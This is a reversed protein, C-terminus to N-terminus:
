PRSRLSLSMVRAFGEADRGDYGHTTEGYRVKGKMRSEPSDVNLLEVTGRGLLLTAHGRVTQQESELFAEVDRLAPELWLGEHLLMGYLSVLSERQLLQWKSLVLKMLERHALHILLAAPAEFVVRGKIGFVTDGTHVDRGIGHRAGVEDLREILEALELAEGDLATPIGAEFDIRVERPETPTQDPPRVKYRLDNPIDQSPDLVAGGGLTTGWLSSNVSYRTTKEAVPIRAEVLRRTTAERSLGLDRIPTVIQVHEPLLARMTVDFRVQDNGAGTSGHAVADFGHERAYNAVGEAQLGRESGVCYPYNGGKLYGARILPVLVRESLDKRADVHVHEVAGCERAREALARRDAESIEGCDFTITTVDYGLEHRLYLVCFSTDLGGSFALLVRPRSM